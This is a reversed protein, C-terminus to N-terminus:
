EDGALTFAVDCVTESGEPVSSLSYTVPGVYVAPLPYKSFRLLVVAWAGLFAKSKKITSLM